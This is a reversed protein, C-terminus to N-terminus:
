QSLFSTYQTQSIAALEEVAISLVQANGSYYAALAKQIKEMQSSLVGVRNEELLRLKVRVDTKLSEYKEKHAEAKEQAEQIATPSATSQSQLGALEHRFVDYEIRAAETGFITDLTDTITKSYLTEMSSVFYKLCSDLSNAQEGIRRMNDSVSSCQTKIINEKLSLQYFSEGMAKEAASLQVLVNSFQRAAVVVAGYRRHLDKLHECEQEFEPDVTKDIKGMQELLQQRSNKFTGITWKKLQDVKATVQAIDVNSVVDSVKPLGPIKVNTSDDSVPSTNDPEIEVATQAAPAVVTPVFVNNGEQTM